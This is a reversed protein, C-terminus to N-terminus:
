TQLKFAKSVVPSGEVNKKDNLNHNTKSALYESVCTKSNMSIAFQFSMWRERFDPKADGIRLKTGKWTTGSLLNMGAYGANLSHKFFPFIRIVDRLNSKLLKFQLM